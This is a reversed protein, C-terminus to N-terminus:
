PQPSAGGVTVTVNKTTQLISDSAVARLEYTGPKNFRVNVVVSDGSKVATPSAPEFVVKEPGRYQIWSLSLGAPPPPPPGPLPANMYYQTQGGRGNPRPPRPGPVGDDSVTARLQMTGPAPLPQVPDISVAPPQNKDLTDLRATPVTRSVILQKDIEWVPILSGVAKQTVGNVTMTWTLDGKFEKPVNVRFVFQQRGAYFYTPQGRDPGGPDMSNDRGIPDIVDEGLNRNLYGFVLDFSGDKQAEWGEFAPQVNQGSLYRIKPAQAFAVSGIALALGGAACATVVALWRPICRTGSLSDPM